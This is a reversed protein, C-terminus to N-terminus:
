TVRVVTPYVIDSVDEGSEDVRRFVNFSANFVRSDGSSHDM